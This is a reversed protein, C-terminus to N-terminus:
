KNQELEEKAEKVLIQRIENPNKGIFLLDIFTKLGEESLRGDQNLIGAKFLYHDDNGKTIKQYLNM